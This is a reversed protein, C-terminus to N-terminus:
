NGIEISILDAVKKYGKISLHHVKPAYDDINNPDIVKSADVFNINMKESATKLELKYETSKRNPRWYLSNPICTVIPECNINCINSLKEITRESISDYKIANIETKTSPKKISKIIDKILTRVSSLSFIQYAYTQKLSKSQM